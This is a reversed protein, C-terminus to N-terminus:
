FPSAVREPFWDIIVQGSDNLLDAFLTNLFPDRQSHYATIDIARNIDNRLSTRNKNLVIAYFKEEQITSYVALEPYIHRFDNYIAASIVVASLENNRLKEFSERASKIIIPNIKFRNIWTRNSDVQNLVVGVKGMLKNIEIAPSNIFYSLEGDNRYFLNDAIQKNENTRKLQYCNDIYNIWNKLINPRFGQLVVLDVKCNVLQHFLTDPNSYRELQIKNSYIFVSENIKKAINENTTYLGIRPYNKELDSFNLIKRNSIDKGQNRKTVIVPGSLLYPKSWAYQTELWIEKPIYSIGMKLRNKAIQPLILTQGTTDWSVKQKEVYDFIRKTLIREKTETESLSLDPDYLIQMPLNLYSSFFQQRKELFFIGVSTLVIAALLIAWRKFMTGKLFYKQHQLSPTINPKLPLDLKKVTFNIRGIYNSLSQFNENLLNEWAGKQSLKLRVHSTTLREGLLNRLIQLIDGQWSIPCLIIWNQNFTLTECIRNLNRWGIESANFFYQVIVEEGSAMKIISRPAPNASDISSITLNYDNYTIILQLRDNQM